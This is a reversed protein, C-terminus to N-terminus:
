ETVSFKYKVVADCKMQMLDMQINGGATDADFNYQSCLL